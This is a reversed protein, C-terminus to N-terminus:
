PCVWATGRRNWLSIRSLSGRWLHRRADGKRVGVRAETEGQLRPGMLQACGWGASSQAELPRYLTLMKGALSPHEQGACGALSRALTWEASPTSARAQWPGWGWQGLLHPLRPARPAERPVQLRCSPPWGLRPLALIPQDLSLHTHHRKVGCAPAGGAGCM